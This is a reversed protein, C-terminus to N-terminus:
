RGGARLDPERCLMNPTASHIALRADKAGQPIGANDAQRNILPPLTLVAAINCNTGEYGGLCVHVENCPRALHLCCRLLIPNRM